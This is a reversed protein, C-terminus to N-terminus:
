KNRWIQLVAYRLSPNNPTNDAGTTVTVVHMGSNGAPLPVTYPLEAGGGLTNLTSLLTRNKNGKVVKFVEITMAGGVGTTHDRLLLTYSSIDSPATRKLEYVRNRTRNRWGDGEASWGAGQAYEELLPLPTDDDLAELSASQGAAFAFGAAQLSDAQAVNLAVSHPVFPLATVAVPVGNNSTASPPDIPGLIRPPDEDTIITALTYPENLERLITCGLPNWGESGPTGNGWDDATEFYSGPDGQRPIAM